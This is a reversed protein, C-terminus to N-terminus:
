ATLRRNADDLTIKGTTLLHILFDGASVNMAKSAFGTFPKEVLYSFGCEYSRKGISQSFGFMGCAAMLEAITFASFFEGVTTGDHSTSDAIRLHTGDIVSYYINGNNDYSLHTEQQLGLAKLKRAQELTCVQQEIKM